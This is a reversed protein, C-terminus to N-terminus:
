TVEYQLDEEDRAKTKGQNGARNQEQEIENAFGTEVEAGFFTLFQGVFLSLQRLRNRLVIALVNWTHDHDLM